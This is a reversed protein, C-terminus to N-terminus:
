GDGLAILYDFIFNPAYRPSKTFEKLTKRSFKRILEFGKKARASKWEGILSVIMRILPSIFIQWLNYNTRFDAQRRFSSLKLKIFNIKPELKKLSYEISLQDNYFVGLYKASSKIPIKYFTKLVSKM